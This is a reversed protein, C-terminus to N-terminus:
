PLHLRQSPHQLPLAPTTAWVLSLARLQLLCATQEATQVVFPPSSTHGILKAIYPPALDYGCVAGARDNVKPCTAIATCAYGCNSRSQLFPVSPCGRRPESM